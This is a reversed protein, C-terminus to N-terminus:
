INFCICNKSAAFLGRCGAPFVAKEVLHGGSRGCWRFLWDCTVELYPGDTTSELSDLCRLFQLVSIM